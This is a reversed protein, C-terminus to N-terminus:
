GTELKRGRFVKVPSGEAVFTSRAKANLVSSFEQGYLPGFVGSFRGTAARWVRWPEHEVRYEVTSGDRQRAYGWYHETIFQEASGENPLRPEDKTGAEVVYSDRRVRWAYRLDADDATRSIRHTMPYSFYNENYALRAVFAIARRPVIESIFVVGRRLEGREERRVYFRLNVEDFNSHFPIALRGYIRTKLFRFAVISVYTRGEFDDLETGSPVRPRLIAPDVEFNLMVLNRWEATLFPRDSTTALPM